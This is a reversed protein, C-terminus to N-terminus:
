FRVNFDAQFVDIALPLRASTGNGIAPGTIENGSLYRLRLFVNRDLGYFGGIFYGKTDTGGLYFDSDTFADLVADRELYRYGVFVQWDHLKRIADAGITLRAQYGTTRPEIDVGTRALIEGRDFGINKAFDAALKFFVPDFRGLEVEGGINLIRYKPALAFAAPNGTGFNIDFLTNGKQTFGPLTWNNATPQLITNPRGWTNLYDFLAVAGKARMTADPKWDVGGQAGFLWKDQPNPTTTTPSFQQLPFAGLTVFGTTTPSFRPKFTGAIGEFNLDEDWVLDTPWFWPNPTRGAMVSWRESPDWKLYARDLVIQQSSFSGGLTTNTSVPNNLNGTSLRFGAGLTETIKALMGLRARIRWLDVDQQTNQINSGTFANYDFPSVNGQQYYEGQYRLRLDGEWVIRDIWEPLAGPEAWREAKAQALVEQKVQEKIESKVTEPVYPVRVTQGRRRRSSTSSPDEVDPPPGEATTEPAPPPPVAKPRPIVDALAGRDSEPLMAEAREKTLVGEQVLARILNVTTSRVQELQAKEKQLQAQAAQVAADAPPQAPAGPAAATPAVSNPAPKAAAPKAPPKKKPAGGALPTPPTQALAGAGLLLFTAAIFTQFPRM